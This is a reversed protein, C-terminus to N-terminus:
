VTEEMGEFFTEYSVKYFHRLRYLKELPLTTFGSEYKQVQQYSVDLIGAIDKQSLKKAKRLIKLNFGVIPGLNEVM